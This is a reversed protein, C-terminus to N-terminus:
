GEKKYIELYAKEIRELASKLSKEEKDYREELAKTYLKFDGKEEWDYVIEWARSVIYEIEILRDYLSMKGDYSKSNQYAMYIGTKTCVAKQAIIKIDRVVQPYWIEKPKFDIAKYM